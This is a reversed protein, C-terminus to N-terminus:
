DDRGPQEPWIGDILVQQRMTVVGGEPLLSGFPQLYAQLSWGTLASGIGNGASALRPSM